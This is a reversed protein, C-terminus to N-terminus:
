TRRPGPETGRQRDDLVVGGTRGDSLLRVTRGALAVVDLGPLGIYRFSDRAPGPPPLHEAAHSLHFGGVLDVLVPAPGPSRNHVTRRTTVAPDSGDALAHGAVTVDFASWVFPTTRLLRGRRDLERLECTLVPDAPADGPVPRLQVVGFRGDRGVVGETNVPFGLALSLRHHLRAVPLCWGPAPAGDGAPGYLAPRGDPSWQYLMRAGAGAYEIRVELGDAHAIVPECWGDGAVIRQAILAVTGAPLLPAVAELLLDWTAGVPPTLRPFPRHAGRRVGATFAERAGSAKLIVEHGAVLDPLPRGALEDLREVAFPAVWLGPVHAAVAEATFLGLATGGFRGFQEVPATGTGPRVATM